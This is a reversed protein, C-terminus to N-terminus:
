MDKHTTSEDFFSLTRQNKPSVNSSDIGDRFESLVSPDRDSFSSDEYRKEGNFPDNMDMSQGLPFGKSSPGSTIPLQMWPHHLVQMATYRDYPNAVLIKSILDKAADSVNNFLYAPLPYKAAQYSIPVIIDLILIHNICCSVLIKSEQKGDFPMAGSLLIYLMIGLSWVDGSSDM